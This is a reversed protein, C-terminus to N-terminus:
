FPIFPNKGSPTIENKDPNQRSKVNELTSESFTVNVESIDEDILTKLDSPIGSFFLYVCGGAFIIISVVITLFLGRQWNAGRNLKELEKININIKKM